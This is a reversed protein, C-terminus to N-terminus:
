LVSAVEEVSTNGTPFSDSNLTSNIFNNVLEMRGNSSQTRRGRLIHYWQTQTGRNGRGNQMQRGGTHGLDRIDAVPNIQHLGTIRCGRIANPLV